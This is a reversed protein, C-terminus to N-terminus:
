CNTSDKHRLMGMFQISFRHREAPRTLNCALHALDQLWVAQYCIVEIKSNVIHIKIHVREEIELKRYASRPHFGIKIGKRLSACLCFLNCPCTIAHNELCCLLADGNLLFDIEAKFDTLLLSTRGSAVHKQKLFQCQVQLNGLVLAALRVVCGPDTHTGSKPAAAQYHEENIVAM